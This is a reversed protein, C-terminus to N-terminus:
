KLRQNISQPLEAKQQTYTRSRGKKRERERRIADHPQNAREEEDHKARRKKDSM